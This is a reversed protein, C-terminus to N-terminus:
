GTLGVMVEMVLCGSVRCGMCENYENEMIRQTQKTEGVLSFM